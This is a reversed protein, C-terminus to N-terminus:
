SGDLWGKRVITDWVVQRQQSLSLATNNIVVDFGEYDDLACESEHPDYVEPSRLLRIVHGGEEQIREVENPFRVDGIILPITNTDAHAFLMNVWCDPNANRFWDTGVVQLWHRGTHGMVLEDKFKDDWFPVGFFTEATITKIGTAF